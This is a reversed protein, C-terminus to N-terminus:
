DVQWQLRVIIYFIVVIVGLTEFGILSGCVMWKFLSWACNNITAISAIGFGLLLLIGGLFSMYALNCGNRHKNTADIINETGSVVDNYNNSISNYSFLGIPWFFIISIISM